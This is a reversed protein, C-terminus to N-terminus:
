APNGSGSAGSRWMCPRSSCYRGCSAEIEAPLSMLPLPNAPQAPAGEVGAEEREPPESGTRSALLPANYQRKGAQHARHRKLVAEFAMKAFDYGFWGLAFALVWTLTGMLTAM